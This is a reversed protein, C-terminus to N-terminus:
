FNLQFWRVVPNKSSPHKIKVWGPGTQTADNAALSLIQVPGPKYGAGTMVDRIEQPTVTVGPKFDLTIRSKKLDFKAWDVGPLQYLRVTINFFGRPSFVGNLTAVARTIAPADQGRSASACFLALVAAALFLNKM